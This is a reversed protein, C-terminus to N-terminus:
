PLFTNLHIHVTSCSPGEATRQYRDPFRSALRDKDIRQNMGFANIHISDTQWHRRLFAGIGLQLTDLGEGCPLLVLPTDNGDIGGTGTLLDLTGSGTSFPPDDVVEVTLSDLMVEVTEFLGKVLRAYRIGMREEVIGVLDIMGVPRRREEVLELLTAAIVQAVM